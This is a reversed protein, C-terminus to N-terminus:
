PRVTGSLYRSVRAGTKSDLWLAELQANGEGGAPTWVGHWIGNGDQALPVPVSGPIRLVLMSGRITEGCPNRVVIEIPTPSKLKAAFGASPKLFSMVLSSSVCASKSAPLNLDVEVIEPISQAVSILVYNRSWSGLAGANATVQISVEGGAPIEGQTRDLRILSSGTYATFARPQLSLNRIRIAEAPKSRNLAIAHSSLEFNPATTNVDLEVPLTQMLVGAQDFLNVSATHIGPALMEPHATFKLTFEAGPTPSFAEVILWPQSSISTARLSANSSSRIVLLASTSNTSRWKAQLQIKNTSFEFPKAHPDPIDLLQVSRSQLNEIKLQIAPEGPITGRRRNLALLYTDPATIEGTTESLEFRSAASPDLSAMFPLSSTTARLLAVLGGGSAGSVEVELSKPDSPLKEVRVPIRKQESATKLTLHGESVGVPLLMPDVHVKAFGTPAITSAQVRLWPASSELTVLGSDRRSVWKLVQPIGFWSGDFVKFDLNRPQIEIKDVVQFSAPGAASAGSADSASLVFQFSGTSTPVGALGEATLALGKPL